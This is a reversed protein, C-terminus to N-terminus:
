KLHVDLMTDITSDPLEQFPSNRLIGANNILVDVAGFTKVATAVIADGGAPTSVSDYSAVAKGGAQTIEEVVKDAMSNSSGQGDFTGGLDNVVVSAGRKALELAYARGLGGGAGTVIAIRSDFRVQSMDATEETSEIFAMASSAKLLGAEILAGTM